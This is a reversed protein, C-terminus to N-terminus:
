WLQRQLVLQPARQLLIRNIPNTLVLDLFRAQDDMTDTQGVGGALGTVVERDPHM